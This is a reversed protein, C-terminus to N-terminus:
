VLSTRDVIEGVAARLATKERGSIYQISLAALNLKTRQLEMALYRLQHSIM